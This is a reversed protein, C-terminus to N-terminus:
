KECYLHSMATIFFIFYYYYYYYDASWIDCPALSHSFYNPNRLSLVGTALMPYLHSLQPPFGDHLSTARLDM